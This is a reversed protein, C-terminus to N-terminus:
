EEKCCPCNQSVMKNKRAIEHQKIVQAIFNQNEKPMLQLSISHAPHIVDNVMTMTSVILNGTRLRENTPKNEEMEEPTLQLKALEKSLSDINTYGIYLIGSIIEKLQM